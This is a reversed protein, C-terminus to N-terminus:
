HMYAKVEEGPNPLGAVRCMSRCTGFLQEVADRNLHNDRCIRRMLPMAGLRFFRDRVYVIVRWHEQTPPGIGDLRAIERALDHTWISPDILFGDDDFLRILADSKIPEAAVVTTTM